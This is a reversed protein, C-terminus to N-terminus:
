SSDSIVLNLKYLFISSFIPSNDDGKIVFKLLIIRMDGSRELSQSPLYLLILIYRMLEYYWNSVSKYFLVVFFLFHHDDVLHVLAFIDSGEDLFSLEIIYVVELRNEDVEGWSYEVEVGVIDDVIVEIKLGDSQM